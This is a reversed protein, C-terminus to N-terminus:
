DSGGQWRFRHTFRPDEYDPGDFVRLAKLMDHLTRNVQKVDYAEEDVAKKLRQMALRTILRYEVASFDDRHEVVSLTEKAQGLTDWFAAVEEPYRTRKLPVSWADPDDQLKGFWTDMADKKEQGENDHNIGSFHIAMDGKIESDPRETSSFTNYWSIPQYVVRKKNKDKNFIWKMANQEINGSIEIEPQLRPMAYADTLTDIVWEDVRCFFMGANFGSDDKTALIKIDSFVDNDTPPLFTEWPINPNLILTDADYWSYQSPNDTDGQGSPIESLRCLGNQDSIM